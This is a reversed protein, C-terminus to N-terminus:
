QGEHRTEAAHPSPVACPPGPPGPPPPAIGAACRRGPRRWLGPLHQPRAGGERGRGPYTSPRSGDRWPPVGEPGKCPALLFCATLAPLPSAGMESTDANPSIHLETDLFRLGWRWKFLTAKHSGKCVCRSTEVCKCKCDAATSTHVCRVWKKGGVHINM